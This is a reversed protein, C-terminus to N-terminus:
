STKSGEDVEAVQARDTGQDVQRVPSAGQSGEDVEALQARDTGQDVQRVLSAVHRTRHRPRADRALDFRPRRPPLCRLSSEDQSTYAPIDTGFPSVTTHTTRFTFLPHTPPLWSCNAIDHSISGDGFLSASIRKVRTLLIIYISRAARVYMYLIRVYFALMVIVFYSMSVITDCNAM